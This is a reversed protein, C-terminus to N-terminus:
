SVTAILYAYYLIGLIIGISILFEVIGGTRIRLIKPLLNIQYPLPSLLPIGQITVSDAILHSFYGLALAYAFIQTGIPAFFYAAAAILLPILISHLIGRHKVFFGIIKLPPIKSNITSNPSDIDPLLSAIGAVSVIMAQTLIPQNQSMMLGVTLGILLHTKGTM